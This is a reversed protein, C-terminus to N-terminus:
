PTLTHSPLTVRLPSRCDEQENKLKVLEVQPDNAAASFRHLPLQIVKVLDSEETVVLLMCSGAWWASRAAWTSDRTTCCEM